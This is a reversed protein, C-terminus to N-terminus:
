PAAFGKLEKPVKELDKGLLESYGLCLKTFCMFFSSWLISVKIMKLLPFLIGIFPTVSVFESCLSLSHGDLTQEVQPNM